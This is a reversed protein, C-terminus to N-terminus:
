HTYRGPLYTPRWVQTEGALEKLYGQAVPNAMLIRQNQDILIVGEPVTDVIQQVQRAQQRTQELLDLREISSGLQKGVSEVLAIEESLWHRPSNANLSMGGIHRGEVNVPVILSARFGFQAILDKLNRIPESNNNDQWDEVVTLSVPVISMRQALESLKPKITEESLNHLCIIDEIWIGGNDLNLARILYDLASQLLSTM